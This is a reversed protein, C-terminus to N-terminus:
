DLQRSRAMRARRRAAAGNVAKEDDRRRGQRRRGEPPPGRCGISAGLVGAHEVRRAVGWVGDRKALISPGMGHRYGNKWEGDWQEGSSKTFVGRGSRKGKIWEGKYTDNEFVHDWPDYKKGAEMHKKRESGYIYTGFGHM